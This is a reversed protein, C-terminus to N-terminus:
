RADKEIYRLFEDTAPRPGRVAKVGLEAAAKVTRELAETGMKHGYKRPLGRREAWRGNGDMIFAIHSPTTM